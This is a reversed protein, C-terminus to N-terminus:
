MIQHGHHLLLFSCSVERYDNCDHLKSSRRNHPVKYGIFAGFLTKPKLTILRNDAGTQGWRRIEVSSHSQLRPIAGNSLGEIVPVAVELERFNAANVKQLVLPLITTVAKHFITVAYQNVYYVRNEIIPVQFRLWERDSSRIKPVCSKLIVLHILVHKIHTHRHTVSTPLEPPPVVKMSVYNLMSFQMLSYLIVTILLETPTCAVVVVCSEPSLLGGILSAVEPELSLKWGRNLPLIHPHVM